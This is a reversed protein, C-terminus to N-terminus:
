SSNCFLHKKKLNSKIKKIQVDHVSYIIKNQIVNSLYIANKPGNDLHSKLTVDYKSLLHIVELFLGKQHSTLSEAHGRFPKGSKTLCIIVDILRKM